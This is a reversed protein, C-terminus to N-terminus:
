VQEARHLEMLVVADPDYTLIPSLGLPVPFAPKEGPAIAAQTIVSLDLRVNEESVERRM